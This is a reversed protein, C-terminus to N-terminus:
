SQLIKLPMLDHEQDFMNGMFISHPIPRSYHFGQGVTVGLHKATTLIEADAVGECIVVSNKQEAINLAFKIVASNINKEHKKLMFQKDVKIGYIPLNSIREISSYGTGFDDILIRVNRQALKECVSLVRKLSGGLNHETIEIALLSLPMGYRQFTRLVRNMVNDDLLVDPSVNISIYFSDPLLQWCDKFDIAINKTVTLTLQVLQRHREIHPLFSTPPMIGIKPNDWRVLTECAIYKDTNLDVIPQYYNVFEGREMASKIVGYRSVNRLIKEYDLDIAKTVDSSENKSNKLQRLSWELSQLISKGFPDGITTSTFCVKIDVHLELSNLKVPYRNFLRILLSSYHQLKDATVINPLVVIFKDSHYRFVEFDGILWAKIAKESLALLEDGVQFGLGVNIGSFDHIDILMIGVNEHRTINDDIRHSAKVHPM